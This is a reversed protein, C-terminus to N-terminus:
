RPEHVPVGTKRTFLGIETKRIASSPLYTKGQHELRILVIPDAKLAESTGTFSVHRGLRDRSYDEKVVRVHTRAGKRKFILLNHVVWLATLGVVVVATIAIFIWTFRVEDRSVRGLVLIWWYVFVVWGAFAVLLHWLRRAPSAEVPPQLSGQPKLPAVM